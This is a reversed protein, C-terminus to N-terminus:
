DQSQSPELKALRTELDTLAAAWVSEMEIYHDDLKKLRGYITNNESSDDSSGLVTNVAAIAAVNKAVMGYLSNVDAGDDSTGVATKLTSVDTRIDNISSNIAIDAEVLGQYEEGHEKIWGNMAVITDFTVTLDESGFLDSKLKNLATTVSSDIDEKTYYDDTLSNNVASISDDVYKYLGTAEEEGDAKNGVVSDLNDIKADLASDTKDIYVYIGSAATDEEGEEGAKAPVGITTNLALIADENAKIKSGVSGVEELSSEIDAVNKVLGSTANGVISELARVNGVLGDAPTSNEDDAEKGVVSELVSIADANEKIKKSYDGNEGLDSELVSVREILGKKVEVEKDPDAEHGNLEDQISKIATDNATINDTNVTIKGNLEVYKDELDAVSKVLGTAPKAGNGDEDGAVAATGVTEELTSVKDQIEVVTENTSMTRLQTKINCIEENVKTVYSTINTKIQEFANVPQNEGTESGTNEEVPEGEAGYLRKDAM